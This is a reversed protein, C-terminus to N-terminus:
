LPHCFCVVPSLWSTGTVGHMYEAWVCYRGTCCLERIEPLCKRQRWTYMEIWDFDTVRMDNDEDDSEDSTCLWSSTPSAPSGPPTVPSTPVSVSTTTSSPPTYPPSRLVGDWLEDVVTAADDDVPVSVIEFPRPVVEFDYDADCGGARVRKRERLEVEDAARGRKCLLSPPSSVVRRADIVRFLEMDDDADSDFGESVRLSPPSEPTPVPAAPDDDPRVVVAFTTTPLLGVASGAPAVPAM